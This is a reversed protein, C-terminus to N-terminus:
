IRLVIKAYFSRAIRHPPHSADIFEVHSKLGPNQGTISLTLSRTIKWALRADIGLYSDVAPTPLHDL